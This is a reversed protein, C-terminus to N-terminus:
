PRGQSPGSLVQRVTDLLDSPAWPKPLFRRNPGSPSSSESMEEHYGSMLVVPVDPRKAQVADALERGSLGPMVLDTILVDIAGNEAEFVELARRGNEAQLVRFGAGSLVRVALRRVLPEDEAVLVVM